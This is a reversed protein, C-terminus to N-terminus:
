GVARKGKHIDSLSMLMTLSNSVTQAWDSAQRLSPGCLGRIGLLNIAEIWFLARYRLFETLAHSLPGPHTSTTLCLHRSWYQCCYKMTEGINRQVEIALTPNDRDLLFSSPIHAMNFHLGTKMTLLSSETLLRHQAAQDCWFEQSRKQNFLFDSFSKHYFLVRGNETYLVAHLKKVTEIASHIFLDNSRSPSLLAGVIRESIPEMACMLAHLISLGHSPARGNRAPFTAVLIQRYLGNLM